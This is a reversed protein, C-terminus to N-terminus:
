SILTTYARFGKGGSWGEAVVEVFVGGISEVGGTYHFLNIIIFSIESSIGLAVKESKNHQQFIM